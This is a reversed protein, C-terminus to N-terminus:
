QNRFGKSEVKELVNGLRRIVSGTDSVNCLEEHSGPQRRSDYYAIVQGPKDPREYALHHDRVGLFHAFVPIDFRLTRRDGLEANLIECLLMPGGYNPAFVLEKGRREKPVYFYAKCRADMESEAASGLDNMAMKLIRLPTYPSEEGECVEQRWLFDCSPCYLLAEMPGASPVPELSTRRGMSIVQSGQHGGLKCEKLKEDREGM